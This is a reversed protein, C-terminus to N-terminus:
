PNKSEKIDDGYWFPKRYNMADCGPNIIIKFPNSEPLYYYNMYFFLPNIVSGFIIEKNPENEYYIKQGYSLNQNNVEFHLHAGGSNGSDGVYGLLTNESVKQNRMVEPKNKLHMYIAVYYEGTVPDKEDSRIAVCNGCAKYGSTIDYTYIVTGAFASVVEYGYISYDFVSIGNTIDIGKHREPIADRWGYPSSVYTAPAGGNPTAVPWVWGLSSYQSITGKTSIHSIPIFGWVGSGSVGYAWSSNGGMDGKVIFLDGVALETSTKEYTNGQSKYVYTAQRAAGTWDLPWRYISHVTCTLTKDGVTASITAIGPKKGIVEGTNSDFSIISTDSVSWDVSGNYATTVRYDDKRLNVFVDLTYISLQRFVEDKAVYDPMFSQLIFGYVTKDNREFQVYFYSGYVGLVTLKGTTFFTQQPMINIHIAQINFFSPTKCTFAMPYAIHSSESKSLKKACYVTISDTANGIKARVTITAKGEKLGKINGHKDCSIVDPKSSTWEVSDFLVFEGFEEVQMTGTEGELIAHKPVINLEKITTANPQNYNHNPTFIDSANANITLIFITCIIVCLSIIHRLAIRKM